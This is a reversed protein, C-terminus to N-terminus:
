SLEIGVVLLCNALALMPHNLRSVPQWQFADGYLCEGGCPFVNSIRKRARVLGIGDTSGLRLCLGVDRFVCARKSYQNGVPFEPENIEAVEGLSFLPLQCTRVIQNARNIEVEGRVVSEKLGICLDNHIREM